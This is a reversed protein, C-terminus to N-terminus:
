AMRGTWRCRPPLYPPGTTTSPAPESANEDGDGGTDSSGYPNRYEYRAPDNIVNWPLSTLMRWGLPLAFASLLASMAIATSSFEVMGAIVLAAQILTIGLLFGAGVLTIYIKKPSRYELM